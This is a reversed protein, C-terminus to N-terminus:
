MQHLLTFVKKEHVNKIHKRIHLSSSGTYDCHSCSLTKKTLRKKKTRKGHMPINENNEEKITNEAYDYSSFEPNDFDLLNKDDKTEEKINDEM